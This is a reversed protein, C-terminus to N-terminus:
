EAVPMILAPNMFPPIQSIRGVLSDYEAKSITITETSEM